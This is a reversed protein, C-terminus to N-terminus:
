SAAETLLRLATRVAGARNGARGRDEDLRVVRAADGLGAVAVYILGPPKETGENGPGAVGTIAAGLDAGLRARVAEAMARAVAESVAGETDLLEAPVGLLAQKVADSYAIVGGLMYASSGPTATLAAGLLGGTCSEAVAVRLGGRRLADFAPGVETFVATLDAGGTESM